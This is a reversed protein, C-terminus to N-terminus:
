NPHLFLWATTIQKWHNGKENEQNLLKGKKRGILKTEKRIYFVLFVVVIRTFTILTAFSFPTTSLYINSRSDLTDQQNSKYVISWISTIPKVLSVSTANESVSISAASCSTCNLFIIRQTTAATCAPADAFASAIRLSMFINNIRLTIIHDSLLFVVAYPHHM